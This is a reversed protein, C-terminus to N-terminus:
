GGGHSKIYGYKLGLQYELIEWGYFQIEEPTIGEAQAIINIAGERTTNAVLELTSTVLEEFRIANAAQNELERQIEGELQSSLYLFDEDFAEVTLFTVGRPRFGYVDKHLDSYISGDNSSTLRDIDALTLM